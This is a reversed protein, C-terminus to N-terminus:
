DNFSTLFFDRNMPLRFRVNKNGCAPCETMLNVDYGIKINEFQKKIFSADKGSLESIYTYLEDDLMDEGNVTEIGLMMRYIYNVEEINLNFKDAKRQALEGYRNVDKSRPLKMTIKDKCVPLEFEIPEKFDKPLEDVDLTSLKVTHSFRKGCVPCKLEVPYDEGYTLVRLKVLTYYKDPVILDDIDIEDTVCSNLIKDIADESTSGYLYKEEAVTMNQITLQKTEYLQGNTPLNITETIRAM